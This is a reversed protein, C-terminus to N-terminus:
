HTELPTETQHRQSQISVSQGWADPLLEVDESVMVRVNQQLLDQQPLGKVM